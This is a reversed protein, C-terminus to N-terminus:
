PLVYKRSLYKMPIIYHLDIEFSASLIGIIEFEDMVKHLIPAGSDGKRLSAFSCVLADAGNYTANAFGSLYGEVCGNAGIAYLVVHSGIFSSPNFNYNIRGIRGNLIENSNKVQINDLINGRFSDWSVEWKRSLELLIMDVYKGDVSCSQTIEMAKLTSFELEAALFFKCSRTINHGATLVYVKGGSDDGGIKLFLGCTGRLLNNFVGADDTFQNSYVNSGVRLRYHICM